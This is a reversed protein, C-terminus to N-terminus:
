FAYKQCIKNQLNHTFIHALIDEQWINATYKGLDALKIQCNLIIKQYIRVWWLPWTITHTFFVYWFKLLDKFCTTVVASDDSAVCQQSHSCPPNCSTYKRQYYGNVNMDLMFDPRWFVVLHSIYPVSWLEAFKLVWLCSVQGEVSAVPWGPLLPNWGNRFTLCAFVYTIGLYTFCVM